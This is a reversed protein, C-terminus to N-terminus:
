VHARGIELCNPKFIDQMILDNMREELRARDFASEMFTMIMRHQQVRDLLEHPDTVDHEELIHRLIDDYWARTKDISAGVSVHIVRNGQLIADIAVQVLLATKGLGARALVLGMGSSSNTGTKLIRLPNKNVLPEYGM